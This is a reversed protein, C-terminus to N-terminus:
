WNTEALPLCLLASHVLLFFWGQINMSLVSASTSAGISQGGSAVLWNVPFSQSPNLALSSLSLPHSPQIADYVWHVHTQAFEPFYHPCPLRAHQLGHPRSRCLLLCSKAASFLATWRQACLYSIHRKTLFCIGLGQGGATRVECTNVTLPGCGSFVAKAVPWIKLSSLSFWYYKM